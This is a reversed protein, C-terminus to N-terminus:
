FYISIFAVQTSFVLYKILVAPDSIPTMFKQGTKKPLFFLIVVKNNLLEGEAQVKLVM